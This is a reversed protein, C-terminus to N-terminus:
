ARSVPLAGIELALRRIADFEASMRHAIRASDYLRQQIWQNEVSDQGAAGAEYLASLYVQEIEAQTSDQSAAALSDMDLGVPWCNYKRFVKELVAAREASNPLDFFFVSDFRGSRFLEPALNLLTQPPQNQGPMKQTIMNATAAIFVPATREQLWTLLNSYQRAPAGAASGSQSGPFGKEIEDIWLVAPSLREILQISERLNSETEGQRSSYLRGPDLRLLPVQWEGAIARAALSKGCGPLGILLCGKPMPIAGGLQLAAGMWRVYERLVDAGGISDFNIEPPIYELLGNKLVAEKKAELLDRSFDATLGAQRVASKHLAQEIETASMGAATYAYHEIDETSLQDQMGAAKVWKQETQILARIEGADPPPLTFITVKKELEDPIEIETSIFVIASHPRDKLAHHLHALQGVFQPNSIYPHFDCLALIAPQKQNQFWALVSQPSAAQIAPTIGQLGRFATWWYVPAGLSSGVRRLLDLARPEDESLLVALTSGARLYLQMQEQLPITLAEQNALRRLDALMESFSPYREQRGLAKMAVNSLEWPINADLLSPPPAYGELVQRATEYETPAGGGFPLQNTLMQYLLVGAAWIDVSEKRANYQIQEPAAYHLNPQAELGRIPVLGIDKVKIQGQATILINRANLDCHLIGRQHAYEMAECIQIAYQVILEPALAPISANLREELPQADEVLEYAVFLVGLHEGSDVVQVLNPHNLAKLRRFQEAKGAIGEPIQNHPIGLAVQSATVQENYNEAKYITRYASYGIRKLIKYAGVQPLATGPGQLSAHHLDAAAQKLAQESTDLLGLHEKIFAALVAQDPPFAQGAQNQLDVFLARAHDWDGKSEASVAKVWLDQIAQLDKEAPAPAFAAAFKQGPVGFLQQRPDGYLIFSAWVLSEQGYQQVCAQRAQLLAAGVPQFKETLECVLCTAFAAAAQPDSTEWLSHIYSSVGLRLFTQVLSFAADQSKWRFSLDIDAREKQIGNILDPIREHREMYDILDRVRDEQGGSGLDDYQLGLQYTLLNKLEGTTFRRTLIERLEQRAQLNHGYAAPWPSAESAHHDHSIILRPLPSAAGAAQAFIRELDKLNLIQQDAMAWGTQYADGPTYVTYGTHYILDYGLFHESAYITEKSLPGAQLRASQGASTLGQLLQQGEQRATELRGAADALVLIKPPQGDAPRGSPRVPGPTGSLGSPGPAPSVDLSTRVKRGVNFREMLFAKGDFLLEWPVQVLTEDLILVLDTEQTDEITKATSPPLIEFWMKRGINRLAQIDAPGAKYRECISDLYQNTIPQGPQMPLCTANFAQADSYASTLILNQRRFLELILAM